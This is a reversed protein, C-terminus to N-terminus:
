SNVSLLFASQPRDAIVPSEIQASNEVLGKLISLVLSDRREDRELMDLAFETASEEGAAVRELEVFARVTRLIRAGLPLDSTFSGTTGALLPSAGTLVNRLSHVLETGHITAPALHEDEYHGVAKRIVRATIEINEVDMLMAAVRLDDIERRSLRMETAVQESLDVIRMAQAHLQSDASQLYRALVEVVGVHAEHAELARANRDDSLTGVLLAAMGLVAGWIMVSLIVLVPSVQFAFRSVDMAIVVTAAIVSLFALVGARYRGLFFGALIIPLFFLNLMVVQSTEVSYLVCAMALTILVLLVELQREARADLKLM